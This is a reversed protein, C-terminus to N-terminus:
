SLDDEPEQRERLDDLLGDMGVRAIRSSFEERQTQLMSIGGVVIDIIRLHGDMLRVRWSAIFPNRGKRSFESHVYLDRKGTPSSGTVNFREDGYEKLRASYVSIIFDPFLQEFDRMQARSAKKRHRGLVLKSLYPIEFGDKLLDHFKQDREEQTMRIDDLTDLTNNALEQIFAEAEESMDQANKAQAPLPLLLISLLIFFTKLKKTM